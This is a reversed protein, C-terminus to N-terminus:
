RVFGASAYQVGRDSHHRLGAQPKRQQIAMSLAASALEAKLHDQMDWGVIKRSHM